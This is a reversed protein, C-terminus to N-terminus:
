VPKVLYPLVITELYMKQIKFLINIITAQQRQILTRGCSILFVIKNEHNARREKKPTRM